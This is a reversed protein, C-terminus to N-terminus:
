ATAFLDSQPAATAQYTPRGWCRATGGVLVGCTHLLGASISAFASGAVDVPVTAAAAAGSDDGAIGPGKGGWCRVLSDSGLGCSHYRGVSVETWVVRGPLDPPTIAGYVESGWCRLSGAQSVGCSHYHGARITVWQASIGDASVPFPEVALQGFGGDGWCVGEGTSLVGCSHWEGASVQAWGVLRCQGGSAACIDCGVGYRGNEFCSSCNVGAPGASCRADLPPSAQGYSNDGWCWVGKPTSAPLPAVVEIVPYFILAEAVTIAGPQDLVGSAYAEAALSASISSSTFALLNNAVYYLMLYLKDVPVAHTGNLRAVITCSRVTAEATDYPASCNHTANTASLADLLRSREVTSQAVAIGCAHYYGASASVDAWGYVQAPPDTQGAYDQGWCIISNNWTIGCTFFSGASLTAWVNRGGSVPPM